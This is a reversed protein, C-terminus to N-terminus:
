KKKEKQGLVTHLFCITKVKAGAEELSSDGGSHKQPKELWRRWVHYLHWWIIQTINRRKDVKAPLAFGVSLFILM